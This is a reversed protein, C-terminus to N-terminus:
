EKLKFEKYGYYGTLLKEHYKDTVKYVEDILQKAIILAEDPRIYLGQGFSKGNDVSWRFLINDCYPIEKGRDKNDIHCVQIIKDNKFKYQNIKKM